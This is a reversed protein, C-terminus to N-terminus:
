SNGRLERIRARARVVGAASPYETLLRTYLEIAKPGDGLTRDTLEAAHLLARDAMTGDPYEAVIGLLTAVAGKADGLAEEARAKHLLAEDVLSSERGVTAARNMEVLAEKWKRQALLYSGRAYYALASDHRGMNEQLLFLYALADNAAESSMDITLGSFAERAEQFRGTYFLTEAHRLEGIDRYRKMDPAGTHAAVGAAEYLQRAGVLEGRRLNLDGQLVLAEALLPFRPYEKHLVELTAIAEGPRDLDDAQLRAIQLLAEAAPITGVNEQVVKRYREILAKAGSESPTGERYQGELARTYGLLANPYIPNSRPYNAMFFELANVASEYRRERLARDAFGYIDSGSGGRQKDLNKAIELAADYDGQETYLWSLLELYSREDPRAEARRRVVAIAAEAANPMTTFAGLGSMVLSKNSPHEDLVTLYEETAETYQGIAGYLQALEDAFATFSGAASRGQQYTEAALNFLRLEVQSRAVIDYTAVEGPRLEIAAQWEALAEDRKQTRHLLNAHLTRLGVDRSMRRLRDEVISLLDAFRLLGMYTRRVGDFYTNSGPDQDYLEKYVRAANKFDGADEYGKALMYRRNEEGRQAYLMSPLVLAAVVLSSIRKM